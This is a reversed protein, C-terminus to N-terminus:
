PSLVPPTVAAARLLEPLAACEPRRRARRAGCRLRLDREVAEQTAGRARACAVALLSFGVAPDEADACAERGYRRAVADDRSFTGGPLSHALWGPAAEYTCVSDGLEYPDAVVFDPRGDHDADTVTLITAGPAPDMPAFALASGSPRVSLLWSEHRGAYPICPGGDERDDRRDVSVFLEPLHDGDYDFASAGLQPNETTGPSIGVLPHVVPASAGAGRELPLYAVELPLVGEANTDLPPAALIAWVGGETEMCAGLGEVELARDAEERSEGAQHFASAAPHALLAARHRAALEGCREEVLSAHTRAPPRAPAPAPAPNAARAPSAAGPSAAIPPRSPHACAGVGGLLLSLATRTSFNSSRRRPRGESVPALM